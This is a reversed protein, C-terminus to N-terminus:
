CRQDWRLTEDTFRPHGIRKKSSDGGRPLDGCGPFIERCGAVNSGYGTM